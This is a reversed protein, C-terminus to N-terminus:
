GDPTIEKRVKELAQKAAAAMRRGIADPDYGAARLVKDVEDSTLEIESFLDSKAQEFTPSKCM